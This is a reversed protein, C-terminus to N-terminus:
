QIQDRRTYTDASPQPQEKSPLADQSTETIKWAQFKAYEAPSMRGNWRQERIRISVKLMPSLLVKGREEISVDARGAVLAKKWVMDLFLAYHPGLYARWHREQRLDARTRFTILDHVQRPNSTTIYHVLEEVQQLDEDAFPERFLQDIHPYTKLRYTAIGLFILGLIMWHIRPVGGALVDLAVIFVDWLGILLLVLADVLVGLASPRISFWVGELLLFLGILVLVLNIPHNQLAVVGIALNILGWVISGRALTRLRAREQHFEAIRQLQEEDRLIAM